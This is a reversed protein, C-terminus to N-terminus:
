RLIHKRHVALHVGLCAVFVGGAVAHWHKQGAAALVLSTGLSGLMGLKAARNVRNRLRHRGKRRPAALVADVAEDVTREFAEVDVRGADYHLVISGAAANGRLGAVGELTALTQELLDLRDPARLAPDRVRIRGPLSSVIRTM